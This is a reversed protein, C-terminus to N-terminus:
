FGRMFYEIKQIRNKIRTRWSSKSLNQGTNDFVVTGFPRNIYDWLLYTKANQSRFDKRLWVSRHAEWINGNRSNQPWFDGLPINLLLVKQAKRRAIDLLAKGEPKELHEIMDGIVICEYDSLEPLVTTADGIFIEDYISRHWPGIVPEFIEIADIRIKWQAADVKNNWVDLMERSLFGWRGFGCGIDLVSAPRFRRIIECCLSINQWNSTAM